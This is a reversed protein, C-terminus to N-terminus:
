STKRQLTRACRRNKGPLWQFFREFCSPRTSQSASSDCWRRLVQCNLAAAFATSLVSSPFRFRESPWLSSKTGLQWPNSPQIVQLLWQRDQVSSGSPFALHLFLWRSKLSTQKRDCCAIASDEDLNQECAREVSRIMHQRLSLGLSTAVSKQGAGPVQEQKQKAKEKCMKPCECSACDLHSCSFSDQLAPDHDLVAM